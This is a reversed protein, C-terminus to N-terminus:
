NHVVNVFYKSYHVDHLVVSEVFEREHQGVVSGIVNLDFHELAYVQVVAVVSADQGFLEDLVVFVNEFDDVVDPQSYNSQNVYDYDVFKLYHSEFDDEVFQEIMEYGVVVFDGDWNVNEVVVVVFEMMESADLQHQLWDVGIREVVVRNMQSDDDVVHFPALMHCGVVFYYLVIEAIETDNLYLVLVVLVAVHEVHYYDVTDLVM